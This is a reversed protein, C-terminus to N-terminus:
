LSVSHTGKKKQKIIKILKGAELITFEFQALLLSWSTDTDLDEFACDHAHLRIIFREWLNETEPVSPPAGAGAGSLLGAMEASDGVGTAASCEKRLCAVWAECEESDIADVLCAQKAQMHPQLAFANLRSEKVEV